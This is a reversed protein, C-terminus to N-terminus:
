LKEKENMDPAFMNLPFKINEEITMSDFLASGQFLMGIDKRIQKHTKENIQVISRGDFLINGADLSILGVMAKMIVTKGSGSSGIILNTKGPEFCSSIGKLVENEGFRKQINQLEIM